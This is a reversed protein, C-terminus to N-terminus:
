TNCFCPLLQDRSFHCLASVVFHIVFASLQVNQNAQASKQCVLVKFVVVYSKFITATISVNLGKLIMFICVTCRIPMFFERPLRFNMLCTSYSRREKKRLPSNPACKKVNLKKLSSLLPNAWDLLRIKSLMRQMDSRQFILSSREKLYHQTM